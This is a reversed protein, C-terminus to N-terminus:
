AIGWSHAFLMAILAAALAWVLLLIAFKRRRTLWAPNPPTLAGALMAQLPARTGRDKALRGQSHGLTRMVRAIEQRGRRDAILITAANPSNTSKLLKTRLPRPVEEMSRYVGEAGAAAIMVTSTQFVGSGGRSGDSGEQRESDAM